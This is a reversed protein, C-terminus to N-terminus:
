IIYFFILLISSVLPSSPHPHMPDFLTDKIASVKIEEIILEYKRNFQKQYHSDNSPFHSLITMPHLLM